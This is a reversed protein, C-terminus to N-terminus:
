FGRHGDPEQQQHHIVNDAAPHQDLAATQRKVTGLMAPRLDEGLARPTLLLWVVNVTGFTRRLRILDFQIQIGDTGLGQTQNAGDQHQNGEQRHDEQPRLDM